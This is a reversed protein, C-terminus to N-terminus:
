SAVTGRRKEKHIRAAGGVMNLCNGLRGNRIVDVASSLQFLGRGGFCMLHLSHTHLTLSRMWLLFWCFSWLLAAAADLVGVRSSAAGDIHKPVVSFPPSANIDAHRSRDPAAAAAAATSLPAIRESSAVRRYVDVPLLEKLGGDGLCLPVM